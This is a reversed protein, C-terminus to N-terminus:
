CTLWGQALKGAVSHWVCTCWCTSCQSTYYHIVHRCCTNNCITSEHGRSSAFQILVFPIQKYQTYDHLPLARMLANHIVHFYSVVSFSTCCAMTPAWVLMRPFLCSQELTSIPLTSLTICYHQPGAADWHQPPATPTSSTYDSVAFLHCLMKSASNFASIYMDRQMDQLFHQAATQPLYKVSGDETCQCATLYWGEWHMGHFRLLQFPPKRVSGQWSASKQLPHVFLCVYILDNCHALRFEKGKTKLSCHM